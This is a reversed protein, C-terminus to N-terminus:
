EQSRGSKKQGNHLRGIKQLQREKKLRQCDSRKKGRGLGGVEKGRGTQGQGPCSDKKEGSDEKQGKNAVFGRKTEYTGFEKSSHDPDSKTKREQYEKKALCGTLWSIRELPGSGKKRLREEKKGIEKHGGELADQRKKKKSKNSPPSPGWLFGRGV